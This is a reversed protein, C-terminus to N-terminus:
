AYPIKREVGWVRGANFVVLALLALAYIIHEDVLVSHAGIYPVPIQPFFEFARMEVVPIYYLVMALAGSVASVRVFAGLLLSVGILTLGWENVFNVLPLMQPSALWSYLASLTKAGKLYGGASWAPDLVKTIGAYFFLWGLSIRLLFLIIKQFLGINM